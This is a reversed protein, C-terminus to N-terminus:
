NNKGPEPPPRYEAARACTTIAKLRIHTQLDAMDRILDEPSADAYRMDLHWRSRWENVALLVCHSGRDIVDCLSMVDRVSVWRRWPTRRACFSPLKRKRSTRSSTSTPTSTSAVKRNRCFTSHHWTDLCFGSILLNLMNMTCIVHVHIYSNKFFHKELEWFKYEIRNSLKMYFTYM